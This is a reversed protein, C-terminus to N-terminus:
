RSGIMRVRVTGGTTVISSRGEGDGFRLLASDRARRVVAGSMSSPIDLSGGEARIELEGSFGPGVDLRVAGRTTEIFVPGQSEPTLRVDVGANETRIRVAGPAGHVTVVGNVTAAVVDGGPNNITIRANSTEADVAGAHNVAQVEGATTRIHVDGSMDVLRVTSNTAEIDLVRAGRPAKVRFASAEPAERAEPWDARVLIAGTRDPEARVRTQGLRAPSAASITAHVRLADGEGPAIEVPGNNARVRLGAGSANPVEVESRETYLPVRQRRRSAPPPASAATASPADREPAPASGGTSCAGLALLSAVFVGAVLPGVARSHAPMTDTPM